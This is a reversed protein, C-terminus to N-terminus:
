LGPQLKWQCARLPISLLLTRLPTLKSSQTLCGYLNVKLSANMLRERELERALSEIEEKMTRIERWKSDMKTELKQKELAAQTQIESVERRRAAKEDELDQKLRRVESEQAERTNREVSEMAERHSRTLSEIDDRARRKIEEVEWDLRRSAEDKEARRERRQEELDRSMSHLNQKTQDLEMKAFSLQSEIGARATELEM